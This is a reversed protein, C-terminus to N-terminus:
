CAPFSKIASQFLKWCGWESTSVRVGSVQHLRVVASRGIFCPSFYTVRVAWARERQRPGRAADGHFGEEVTWQSPLQSAVFVGWQSVCGRGQSQAWRWHLGPGSSVWSAPVLPLKKGPSLTLIVATTPPPHSQHFPGRLIQTQPTGTQVAFSM